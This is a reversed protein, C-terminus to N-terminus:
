YDIDYDRQKPTPPLAAPKHVPVDITAYGLCQPPPALQQTAARRWKDAEKHWFDCEDRLRATTRRESEFSRRLDRQAKKFEELTFFLDLRQHEEHEFKARLEAYKRELEPDPSGM